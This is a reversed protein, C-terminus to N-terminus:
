ARIMELLRVEMEVVLVKTVTNSILGLLLIQRSNTGHICAHVPVARDGHPAPRLSGRDGRDGPDSYVVPVTSHRVTRLAGQTYKIM